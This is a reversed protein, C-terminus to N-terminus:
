SAGFSSGQEKLIIAYSSTFGAADIATISAKEKISSM